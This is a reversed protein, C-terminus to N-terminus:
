ENNGIRTLVYEFYRLIAAWLCVPTEALNSMAVDEAAESRAAKRTGCQTYLVCLATSRSDRGARGWRQMLDAVGCMGYQFVLSVNWDIGLGLASTAAVAATRNQPFDALVLAKDSDSTNSHFRRALPSDATVRLKGAAHMKALTQGTHGRTNSYHLSQPVSALDTRGAFLREADAAQLVGGSMPTRILRLNPRYLDASVHVVRDDDEIKLIDLVRKMAPCPLSGSVAIVPCDFTKLRRWLEGYDMRMPAETRSLHASSKEESRRLGWLWILHAEDIVLRSVKGKLADNDFWAKQAKTGNLM